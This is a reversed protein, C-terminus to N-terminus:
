ALLGHLEDFLALGIQDLTEDRLFTSREIRKEQAVICLDTPFKWWPGRFGSLVALRDFAFRPRFDIEGLGFDDAFAFHVAALQDLHVVGVVDALWVLVVPLDELQCLFTALM